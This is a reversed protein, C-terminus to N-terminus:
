QVSEAVGLVVTNSAVCGWLGAMGDGIAVAGMGFGIAGCFRDEVCDLAM